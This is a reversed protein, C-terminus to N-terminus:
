ALTNASGHHKGGCRCYCFPATAQQCRADDCDESDVKGDCIDANRLAARDRWALTRCSGGPCYNRDRVRQVYVQAGCHACKVKAKM